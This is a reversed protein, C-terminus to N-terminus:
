YQALTNFYNAEIIPYQEFSEETCKYEYKRKDM